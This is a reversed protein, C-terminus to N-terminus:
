GRESDSQHLPNSIMGAAGHTDVCTLISLPNRCVETGFVRKVLSIRLPLRREVKGQTANPLMDTRMWTSRCCECKVFRSKMEPRTTRLKVLSSAIPEIVTLNSPSLLVRNAAGLDMYWSPCFLLFVSSSTWLTLLHKCNGGTINLM